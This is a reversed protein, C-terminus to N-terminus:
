SLGKKAEKLTNVSKQLLSQEHPNLPPILVQSIGQAGIIAPMSMCVDYQQVFCSVPVLRQQDFVINECLASICSAVGYFTSGKCRIIEYVKDKAEKAMDVLEHQGLFQDLPIGAIRGASLAAVQSDGHEGICYVHISQEAIACKQSIYHRLRQTDLLTGSGFVQEKPLGAIQQAYLTLTDVPNTVMIIIAHPNIPQMSEIVQKIIKQNTKLLEQRSQGPKQAIGASIIIIDAQGAKKATGQRVKSARSFSLADSIDLVEGLCQQEAIDVLMVEAAINRMLIAYATTSGVRGAGIIAIKAYKM